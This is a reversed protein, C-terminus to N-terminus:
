QNRQIRASEAPHPVDSAAPNALSADGAAWSNGESIELTHHGLMADTGQPAQRTKSPQGRRDIRQGPNDLLAARCHGGRRRDVWCIGGVIFARLSITV